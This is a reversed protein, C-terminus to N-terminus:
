LGAMQNRQTVHPFVRVVATAAEQVAAMREPPVHSGDGDLHGDVAAMADRLAMVAPQADERLKALDTGVTPICPIVAAAVGLAPAFEPFIAAGIKCADAVLTWPFPM